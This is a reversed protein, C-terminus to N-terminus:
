NLTDSIRQCQCKWDDARKEAEEASIEEDPDWKGDPLGGRWLRGIVKDEAITERMIEDVDQPTVRGYWVGDKWAGKYIVVNGAFKHGGVHSCGFVQIDLDRLQTVEPSNLYDEFQQVLLTGIVGCRYDREAHTCVYIHVTNQALPEVSVYPMDEIDQNYVWRKQVQIVQQKSPTPTNFTLRLNDPYIHVCPLSSSHSSKCDLIRWPPHKTTTAWDIVFQSLKLYSDSEPGHKVDEKPRAPWNFVGTSVFFQRKSGQMSNALPNSIDIHNSVEKPITPIATSCPCSTSFFRFASVPFWPVLSFDLNTRRGLCNRPVLRVIM